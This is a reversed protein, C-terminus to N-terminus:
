VAGAACPVAGRWVTGDDLLVAVDATGGATRAGVSLRQAPGFYVQWAPPPCPMTELSAAGDARRRSKVPLREGWAPVAPARQGRDSGPPRPCACRVQTAVGTAQNYYWVGSCSTGTWAVFWAVGAPDHPAHTLCGPQPDAEWAPALPGLRGAARGGLPLLGRVGPTSLSTAPSTPSARRLWRPCPPCCARPRPNLCWGGGVTSAPGGRAAWAPGAGAEGVVYGSVTDYQQVSHATTVAYGQQHDAAVRVGGARGDLPPCISLRAPQVGCLRGCPRYGTGASKGGPLSLWGGAIGGNAGWTGNRLWRMSTAPSTSGDLIYLTGDPTSLPAPYSLLCSLLEVDAHQRCGGAAPLWCAGVACVWASRWTPPLAPTGCPRGPGRRQLCPILPLAPPQCALVAQAADQLLM